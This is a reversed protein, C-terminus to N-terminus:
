SPSECSSSREVSSNLKRGGMGIGGDFRLPSMGCGGTSSMPLSFRQACQMFASTSSSSDPVVINHQSLQGRTNWM